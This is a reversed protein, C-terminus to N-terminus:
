VTSNRVEATPQVWVGVRGKIPDPRTGECCRCTQLFVDLLPGPVASPYLCDDYEPGLEGFVEDVVASADKNM